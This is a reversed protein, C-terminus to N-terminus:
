KGMRRRYRWGKYDIVIGALIAWIAGSYWLWLLMAIAIVSWFLKFVVIDSM